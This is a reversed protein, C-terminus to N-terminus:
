LWVAMDGTASWVAAVCASALVHLCGRQWNEQPAAFPLPVPTPSHMYVAVRGYRRPRQVCCSWLILIACPYLRGAMERTARCVAAAFHPLRMTVAVRGDRRYRQVCGCSILSACTSLWETVVGIACCVAAACSFALANLSGSQWREQPM